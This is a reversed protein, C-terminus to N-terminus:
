AKVPDTAGISASESAWTTLASREVMRSNFIRAFQQFAVGSGMSTNFSKRMDCPELAVYVKLNGNFTLM